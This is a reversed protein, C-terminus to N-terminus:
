KGDHMTFERLKFNPGRGMYPIYESVTSVVSGTQDQFASIIWNGVDARITQKRMFASQAETTGLQYVFTNRLVDQSMKHYHGILLIQPKEGDEYSNVIKQPRYSKAYATGGGGHMLKMLSYDGTKIIDGEPKEIIINENKDLSIVTSKDDPSSFYRNYFPGIKPVLVIDAEMYGIFHMDKRGAQAAKLAAMEAIDIGERQWWWGEHDDGTIFVTTVGPMNPYENVLKELQATLGIERVEFKNFRCQGDLYNGGHFIFQIGENGCRRYFDWLPGAEGRRDGTYYPSVMHTDATAGFTFKSYNFTKPDIISHKHKQPDVIQRRFRGPVKYSETLYFSLEEEKKLKKLGEKIDHPSCNIQNAMKEVNMSHTGRSKLRRVKDELENLIQTFTKKM